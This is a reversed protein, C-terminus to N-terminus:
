RSWKAMLFGDCIRQGNYGGSGNTGTQFDKGFRASFVATMSRLSRSAGGTITVPRRGLQLRARLRFHNDDRRAPERTSGNAQHGERVNWGYDAGALGEDIEEWTNQGVDNIFFRTAAANPDFSIRFPNRLGSAFTEQCWNGVTTIGTVNCRGSNAGQFPNSAPIAGDRTIRLIKGLM